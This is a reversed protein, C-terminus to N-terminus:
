PFGSSSIVLDNLIGSLNQFCGQYQSLQLCILAIVVKIKKGPKSESSTRSIRRVRQKRGLEQFPAVRTVMHFPIIPTRLSISWHVKGSTFQGTVNQPHGEAANGKDFPATTTGSGTEGSVPKQGSETPKNNEGFVMNSAGSVVKNITDM